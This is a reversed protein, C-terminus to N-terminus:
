FQAGPSLKLTSTWHKRQRMGDTWFNRQRSWPLKVLILILIIFSQLSQTTGYFCIKSVADRRLRCRSIKAVTLDSMTVVEEEGPPVLFVVLRKWSVLICAHINIRQLWNQSGSAALDTTVLEAVRAFRPVELNPRLHGERRGGIEFVDLDM